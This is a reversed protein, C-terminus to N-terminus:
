KHILETSTVPVNTLVSIHCVATRQMHAASALPMGWVIISMKSIIVKFLCMFDTYWLWKYILSWPVSRWITEAACRTTTDGTSLQMHWPYMKQPTWWTTICLWVYLATSALSGWALSCSCPLSACGTSAPQKAQAILMCYLPLHDFTIVLVSMLIADKQVSTPFVYMFSLISNPEKRM